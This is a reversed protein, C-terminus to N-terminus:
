ARAELKEPAGLGIPRGDPAVIVPHVQARRIRFPEPGLYPWGTAAAMIARMLGRHCVLLVRAKADSPAATEADNPAATPAATPADSPADSPADGRAPARGGAAAEALAPIVRALMEAPTEGNPPRFHWGWGEVPGYACAADAILDAGIAGEWAGFDMEILRPDVTAPGSRSLIEATQRARALPSAIIRAGRWRAPLRLAGLAAVSAASLAVDTRGQLRGQANWETPFHRLLGLEVGAPKRLGEPESEGEPASM